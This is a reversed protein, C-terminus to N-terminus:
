IWGEASGDREDEIMEVYRRRKNRPMELIDAEHWHYHWAILHVERELRRASAAFEGLVAHTLDIYASFEQQCAPCKAELEPTVDASLEEMRREIANKAADPLPLRRRVAKSAVRLVCRKLLFDSVAAPGDLGAVCAEEVDAGCPLRFEVRPPLDLSFTRQKLPRPEIPLLALDLPIEMHEACQERPCTMGIWMKRGITRERLCRLLYDRDQITLKRILEPTVSRISGIRTVSMSLALTTLSAATAETPAHSLAEEARGCLPTIDADRHVTGRDDVFGAPLEITYALEPAGPGNPRRLNRSM